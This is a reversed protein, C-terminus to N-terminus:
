EGKTLSVRHTLKPWGFVGICTAWNRACLFFCKHCIMYLWIGHVDHTKGNQQDILKAMGARIFPVQLDFGCKPCRNTDLKAM